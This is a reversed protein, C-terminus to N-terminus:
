SALGGQDWGRDNERHSGHSAVQQIKLPTDWVGGFLNHLNEVTRPYTSRECVSHDTHDM